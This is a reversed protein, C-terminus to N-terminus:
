RAGRRYKAELITREYPWRSELWGGLRPFAATWFTYTIVAAVGWAVLCAHLPQM